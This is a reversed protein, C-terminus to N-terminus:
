LSRVFSSRIGKYVENPAILSKGWGSSLSDRQQMNFVASTLEIVRLKVEQEKISM